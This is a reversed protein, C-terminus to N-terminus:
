SSNPQAGKDRGAWAVWGRGQVWGWGQVGGSGGGLGWGGVGECGGFIRKEALM